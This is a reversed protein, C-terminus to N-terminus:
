YELSMCINSRKKYNWLDRFARKRKEKKEGLRERHQKSQTIKKTTTRDQLEGIKNKGRKGRWEATSSM